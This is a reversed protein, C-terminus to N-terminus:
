KFGLLKLMGLTIAVSVAIWLKALHAKLDKAYILTPVAEDIHEEFKQNLKEQHKDKELRVQEATLFRNIAESMEKVSASAEVIANELRDLREDSM